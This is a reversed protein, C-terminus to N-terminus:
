LAGERTEYARQAELAAHVCEELTLDHAAAWRPASVVLNGIERRLDERSGDRLARVLDGGVRLLAQAIDGSASPLGIACARGTLEDLTM